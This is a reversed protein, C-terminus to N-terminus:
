RRAGRNWLAREYPDLGSNTSPQDQTVPTTKYVGSQASAVANVAKTPSPAIAVPGNFSHAADGKDYGVIVDATGDLNRTASGLLGAMTAVGITDPAAVLVTQTMTQGIRQRM